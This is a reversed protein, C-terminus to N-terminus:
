GQAQHWAELLSREREPALGARLPQDSPRSTHWTLTDRITDAMPRFTLGAQIAKLSNVQDLGAESAPVWLPMEVFPGVEKELLFTESVWTFNADSPIVAQCSALFQQMTLPQAPGTANYVGTQRAEVM